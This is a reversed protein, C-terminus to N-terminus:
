NGGIRRRIAAGAERAKAVGDIEPESDQHMTVVLAARLNSALVDDVKELPAAPDVGWFECIRGYFKGTESSAFSALVRM